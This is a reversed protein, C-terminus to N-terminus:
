ASAAATLPKALDLSNQMITERQKFMLYRNVSWILAAPVIGVITAALAYCLTKILPSMTEVSNVREQYTQYHLKQAQEDGGAQLFLLTYSLIQIRPQEKEKALAQRLAAFAEIKKDAAARPNELLTMISRLLWNELQAMGPSDKIALWFNDLQELSLPKILNLLMACNKNEYFDLLRFFYPSRNEQQFVIRRDKQPMDGLISGLMQSGDLVLWEWLSRGKSVENLYTYHKEKPIFALLAQMSKQHTVAKQLVTENHNNKLNILELREVETLPELMKKIIEPNKVAYHLPTNGLSDKQRLDEITYEKEILAFLELSAAARHLINQKNRNMTRLLISRDAESLQKIINELVSVDIYSYWDKVALYINMREEPLHLESLIVLLKPNEILYDRVTRHYDHRKTLWTDWDERAIFDTFFERLFEPESFTKTLLLGHAHCDCILMDLQAARPMRKLTEFFLTKHHILLEHVYTTYECSLPKLHTWLEENSFKNLFHQAIDRNYLYKLWASSRMAAKACTEANLYPLIKIFIQKNTSAREAIDAFVDQLSEIPIQKEKIVRLFQAFSLPNNLLIQTCSLDFSKKDLWSKWQTAAVYENFFTYAFEKTALARAFYLGSDHDLTDLVILRDAASLLELVQLFLRPRHLLLKKVISEGERKLNNLFHLRNKDEFKHLFLTLLDDRACVTEWFYKGNKVNKVNLLRICEEDSLYPILAALMEQHQASLRLVSTLPSYMFYPLEKEKAFVQLLEKFSEPNGAIIAEIVSPKGERKLGLCELWESRKISSCFFATIFSADHALAYNIIYGDKPSFAKLISLKDPEPLMAMVEFFLAPAHIILEHIFSIDEKKLALLKNLRQSPETDAIIKKLLNGEQWLYQWFSSSAKGQVPLALLETETRYPVSLQFLAVNQALQELPMSTLIQQISQPLESQQQQYLKILVVLTQPSDQIDKLITQGEGYELQLWEQWEEPALYTTFFTEVFQPDKFALNLLLPRDRFIQLREALSFKNLVAFFLPPEIKILELLYSSEGDSCANLLLFLKDQPLTGLLTKTIETKKVLEEWVFQMLSDQRATFIEQLFEVPLFGLLNQLLPAHKKTNTAMKEAIFEKIFGPVETNESALIKLVVGLNNNFFIEPLLNLDLLYRSWEGKDICNNFFYTVFQTETILSDIVRSPKTITTGEVFWDLQRTLAFLMDEKPLLQLISIIEAKKERAMLQLFSTSKNKLASLFSWREEPLFKLLMDKSATTDEALMMWLHKRDAQIQHLLLLRCDEKTLYPLIKRFLQIDPPLYYYESWVYSYYSEDRTLHYIFAHRHREVFLSIIIRREAVTFLQLLEALSKDINSKKIFDRWNNASLVALRKSAPLANLLAFAWYNKKLAKQRLTKGKKLRFNLLNEQIEPSESFSAFIVELLKLDNLAKDLLMGQGGGFDRTILQYRELPSLLKLLTIKAQVAESPIRKALIDRAQYPNAMFIRCEQPYSELIYEFLQPNSSLTEDLSDHLHLSVDSSTDGFYKKLAQNLIFNKKRVDNRFLGVKVAQVLKNTDLNNTELEQWFRPFASFPVRRSIEIFAEPNLKMLPQISCKQLLNVPFHSIDKETKTSIFHSLQEILQAQRQQLSKPSLAPAFNLIPNNANAYVIEEFGDSAIEICKGALIDAVRDKLTKTNAAVNELNIKFEPPLSQLYDLFVAFAKQASSVAYPNENISQGGARLDRILQTIHERPPVSEKCFLIINTKLASLSDNYDYIKEALVPHHAQLYNYFNRQHFLSQFNKLSRVDFLLDGDIVCHSLDCTTLAQRAVKTLVPTLNNLADRLQKQTLNFNVAFNDDVEARYFNKVGPLLVALPDEPFLLQALTIYLQNTRSDPYTSLNFYSDSNDMREQCFQAFHIRFEEPKDLLDQLRKVEFSFEKDLMSLILRDYNDVIYKDPDHGGNARIFENIQERSLFIKGERKGEFLSINKVFSSLDNIRVAEVGNVPDVYSLQRQNENEVYIYNNKYQGPEQPFHPLLYIYCGERASNELLAILRTMEDATLTKELTPSASNAPM